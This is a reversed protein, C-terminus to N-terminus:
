ASTKSLRTPGRSVGIVRPETARETAIPARITSAVSKAVETRLELICIEDAILFRGSGAPPRFQAIHRIASRAPRLRTDSAASTPPRIESRDRAVKVPAARVAHAATTAPLM